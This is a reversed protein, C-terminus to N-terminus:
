EYNQFHSCLECNLSRIETRVTLMLKFFVGAHTHFGENGDFTKFDRGKNCPYTTTLNPPDKKLFKDECFKRYATEYLFLSLLVVFKLTEGHM